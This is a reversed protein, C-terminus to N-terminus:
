LKDATVEASDSEENFVHLNTDDAHLVVVILVLFNSVSTILQDFLRNSHLHRVLKKNVILCLPKASGNDQM